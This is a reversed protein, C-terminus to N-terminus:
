LITIMNYFNIKINTDSSTYVLINDHKYSVLKSFWGSERQKIVKRPKLKSRKSRSSTGKVEPGAKVCNEKSSCGEM